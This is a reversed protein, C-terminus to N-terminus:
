EAARRAICIASLGAPLTARPHRLIRAEVVLAWRLMENLWSFSPPLAKVDSGSASLGLRKLVLRRVIAGPLLVSNAYTARIVSLGAEEIRRRVLGLSYRRHTGLVEDHSSRIWEYAAVRIFAVGGPRLVRYVEGLAQRDAAAGPVQGLVDFSTLLDFARDAFPLDTISAQALCPHTRRRCFHLATSVLDIGVVPRGGAYRGLWRLNAGTGCGADLVSRDRGSPCVPDLVAATIARMGRFWWLDEELAYMDAYDDARMWM